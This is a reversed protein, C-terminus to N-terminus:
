KPQPLVSIVVEDTKEEIGNKFRATLSNIKIAGEKAPVLTYTINEIAQTKGNVLSNGKYYNPGSILQLNDFQPPIVTVLESPDAIIYQIQFAEGAVVQKPVIIQIRQAQSCLFCISFILVAASRKM